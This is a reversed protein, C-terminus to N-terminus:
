TQAEASKNVVSNLPLDAAPVVSSRVASISGAKDSQRTNGNRGHNRRKGKDANMDPEGHRAIFREIWCIVAEPMPSSFVDEEGGDMYSAAEDQSATILYPQMGTSQENCIVFLRPDGSGLNFRYAAREDRYLELSLGQWLYSATGPRDDVEVLSLSDQAKSARDSLLAIVSWSDADWAGRSVTKRQMRILWPWHRVEPMTLPEADISNEEAM